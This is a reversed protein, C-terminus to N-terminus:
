SPSDSDLLINTEVSATVPIAAAQLLELIINPESVILGNFEEEFNSSDTTISTIEIVSVIELTGSVALKRGRVNTNPNITPVFRCTIYTCHVDVKDSNDYISHVVGEVIHEYATTETSGQLCQTGLFKQELVKITVIEEAFSPQQSM